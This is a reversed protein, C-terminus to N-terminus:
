KLSELVLKVLENKDGNPIWRAVIVLDNEQDVYIMNTGAGIHAFATAPASPIFERENNLFYNMFGYGPNAATPTKSKEMWSTPILQEGKWQGNNLTLYGFRAQDWASLMMGGGWHSGGSVSQMIQGDIIVFSNEYGTWRWTDSAGIPDMIKSKLVVPLPKRWVNMLALALVNVRTDNYEYLSGPANQPRERKEQVGERPRDAWDPKGWLSGEWDSTQRLLHDWTITRNHETDFLEFTDEEEFHDAKNIMLKAPEYPYLPAMYPYVLDNESSILGEKVALGATTSLFSKAVSFTLDVRDPDGWQGVVYGKYIILGTAPGRLKMPGIPYGFPERGFASEYHAIKLNPNANSEHAVAFDIAEQLKNPDVGLESPTKSEWNGKSPFYTQASLFQVLCFVLFLCSTLKKM